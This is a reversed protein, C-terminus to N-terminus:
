PEPEDEGVDVNVTTPVEPPIDNPIIKLRWRDQSSSVALDIIGSRVIVRYGATSGGPANIILWLDPGTMPVMEVSGNAITIELDSTGDQLKRVVYINDTSNNKVYVNAQEAM